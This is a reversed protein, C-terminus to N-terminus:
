STVQRRKLWAAHQERTYSRPEHRATIRHHLHRWYDPAADAPDIGLADVADIARLVREVRPWSDVRLLIEGGPRVFPLTQFPSGAEVARVIDVRSVTAGLDNSAWRVFAFISGPAFSSLRRRDDLIQEDVRHGFHLWHEIRKEIWTLEVHTLSAARRHPPTSFRGNM